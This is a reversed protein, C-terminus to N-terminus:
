CKPTAYKRFNIIWIVKTISRIDRSSVIPRNANWILIYYNSKINELLQERKLLICALGVHVCVNRLPKTHIKYVYTIRENKNFKYNKM